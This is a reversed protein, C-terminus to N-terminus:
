KIVAEKDEIGMIVACPPGSCPQAEWYYYIEGCDECVSEYEYYHLSGDHYNDGTPGTATLNHDARFAFYYIDGTYYRDWGMYEGNRVAENSWVSESPITNLQLVHTMGPKHLWTSGALKMYHFDELGSSSCKRLCIISHTGSFSMIESYSTKKIRCPYGLSELDSMTLNAMQGVTMNLSFNLYTSTNFCGPWHRLEVGDFPRTQGLAYSYCNYGYYEDLWNGYVTSFLLPYTRAGVYAGPMTEEQVGYYDNVTDKIQNAFEYTVPYNIAFQYYPDEEITAIVNKIFAGLSQYDKLEDPIELGRSQIFQICEEESLESLRMQTADPEAANSTFCMALTLLIALFFAVTRKM